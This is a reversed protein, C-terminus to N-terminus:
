SVCSRHLLPLWEGISQPLRSGARSSAECSTSCSQLSQWSPFDLTLRAILARRFLPGVRISGWTALGSSLLATGAGMASLLPGYFAAPRVNMPEDRFVEPIELSAGIAFIALGITWALRTARSLQQLQPTMALKSSTLSGDVCGTIAGLAFGLVFSPGSRFLAIFWDPPSHLNPQHSMSTVFSAFTLIAFALGGVLAFRIGRWTLSTGLAFVMLGIALLDMAIIKSVM